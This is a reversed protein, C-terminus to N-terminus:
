AEVDERIGALFTTLSDISGVPAASRFEGTGSWAVAYPTAPVDVARLPSGEPAVVIDGDPMELRGSLPVVAFRVQGRLEAAFGPAARLAEDCSPCRADVYLAVVAKATGALSRVDHPDPGSRPQGAPGSLREIRAELVKNQRVLGTVALVLVAVVLWLVVVSASTLSM